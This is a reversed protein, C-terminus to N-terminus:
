KKESSPIVRLKKNFVLHHGPCVYVKRGNVVCSSEETIEMGRHPCKGCEAKKGIFPREFDSRYSGTYITKSFDRLMRRRQTEFTLLAMNRVSIRIAPQKTTDVWFLHNEEQTFFRYDLHWHFKTGDPGLAPPDIHPEDLVPVFYSKRDVDSTARICRVDYEEGVIM